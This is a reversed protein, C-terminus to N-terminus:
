ESATKKDAYRIVLEFPSNDANALEMKQAPIGVLYDSLWKRASGDGQKAQKVAKQIIDNWDTISVATVLVDRYQMEREKTPRGNPNGPNGKVFRGKDDRVSAM